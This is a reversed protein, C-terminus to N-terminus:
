KSLEKAISKLMKIDFDDLEIGATLGNLYDIMLQKNEDTKEAEVESEEAESEETEETEETEEQAIIKDKVLKRIECCKMSKDICMMDTIYLSLSTCLGCDVLPFMEVIQSYSFDSEILDESTYEVFKKFQTATSKNLGIYKLFDTLKEFDDKYLEHSIIRGVTKAIEKQNGKVSSFLGDLISLEAKLESNVLEKTEVIMLEM